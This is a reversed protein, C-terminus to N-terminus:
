HTKKLILNQGVFRSYRKIEIGWDWDPGQSKSGTSAVVRKTKPDVIVINYFFKTEFTPTSQKFTLKGSKAQELISKVFDSMLDKSM